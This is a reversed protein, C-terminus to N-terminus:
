VESQGAPGLQGVMAQLPKAALDNNHFFEEVTPLCEIAGVHFCREDAGTSSSKNAPSTLSLGSTTVRPSKLAAGILCLDWDIPPVPLTLCLTVLVM